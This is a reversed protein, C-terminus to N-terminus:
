EYRYGINEPYLLRRAKLDMIESATNQVGQMESYVVSSAHSYRSTTLQSLIVLGADQGDGDIHHVETYCGADTLTPLLVHELYIPLKGSNTMLLWTGFSTTCNTCFGGM